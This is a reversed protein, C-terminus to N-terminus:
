KTCREKYWLLTKNLADIINYKPQIGILRAKTADIRRIPIMSPKNSNYTIEPYFNEIKCLFELIQKISYAEGYSINIPDYGKTKEIVQLTMDVFDEIYLIDRIDNGDGWIELPNLREAIKRILSATVHSLEPDFNDYPGFLNSPRIVICQMANQIKETYTRCMIEAYRKMWAPAYYVNYPDGKFIDDEKTPTDGTDPYAASSSIFVFKNVGSSFSADLMQANMIVNPTVMALPNEKIFKAGHSVAACMFVVDKDRAIYMCDKQKLLDCPLVNFGDEVHFGSDFGNSHETITVIAGLSKLKLAINYGIFGEGGTVLVKKNEWFM